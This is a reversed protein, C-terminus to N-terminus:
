GRAAWVNCWGSAKVQKGPFM